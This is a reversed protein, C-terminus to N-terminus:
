VTNRGPGRKAAAILGGNGCSTKCLHLFEMHNCGFVTDFKPGMSPRVSVGERLSKGFHRHRTGPTGVDLRRDERGSRVVKTDVVEAHVLELGSYIPIRNDLGPVCPTLIVVDFCLDPFLKRKGSNAHVRKFACNVNNLIGRIRYGCAEENDLVVIM